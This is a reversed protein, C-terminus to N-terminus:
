VTLVCSEEYGDLLHDHTMLLMKEAKAQCILMRDFPDHHEKVTKKPALTKLLAIHTKKLALCQFGTQEAYAVFEEDSLTIIEPKSQHKIAVEWVSILSYYVENDVNKIWQAARQSLRRDNTVAWLVIHTDLLLRM